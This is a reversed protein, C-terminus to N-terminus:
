YIRPAQALPKIIPLEFAIPYTTADNQHDNGATKDPQGNKDYSQQELSKAVVPCQKDNVFLLGDEFAKNTANIRDKVAPNKSNVRVEFGSQRLLSLDTESANNTKRANGSADPYIVIRRNPWKNKITNIAEPTDYMDVLEAVAHWQKERKVYVTAAQKMVNFDMGIYLPERDLISENSRHTIRNYARYVTGSTLNVFEGNIYADIMNEPYADYLSKIFDDPLHKNDTTRAKILRKESTMEEVFIRHMAGFGEPTSVIVFQRVNGVRIRGLLKLYAPYAKDQKTTDFEDAIVWAANIGIARGYDELSKCIIRTEKGQVMCYFIMDSKNLKYPIGFFDLAAKLEPILIQTLLPFNPETCIGDFGPNKLLLDVAKRAVAFTKGGGFGSTLGIVRTTTDAILEFQHPLLRLQRKTM